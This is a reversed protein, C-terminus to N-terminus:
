AYYRNEGVGVVNEVCRGCIEIHDAHAGVDSRRHWCRICKKKTEGVPIIHIKLSNNGSLEPADGLLPAKKSVLVDDAVRADSTIFVFRLENGLKNLITQLTAACTLEVEAELASGIKGEARYKEIEKNVENRVTIIKEWNIDDTAKFVPWDAYWRELFVSESKEGPLFQWIEEATFSLIPAFWRVMAQVVHYLATQASRRGLSNKQMTYQRDKIIDLYFGGMENVCFNHLKQFILHFQYEDYAKIIEQQLSQAREVIWRDLSLMKDAPVLNKQPDFDHLNALLFRTTNRIRRYAEATRKIIEESGAIEGSYDASAIWLRLIDAGMQSIIKEPEIGNGLSKSMKRGQEDVTFGHTLVAKYPARGDMAVGSLLSSHFWGRHQDSGELYLDAPWALAPNRRLVCFHTVGSEFWVDLIDTVKEYDDGDKPLLETVDLEHWADVGQKEVRLAVQELIELTKPHLERTFKHVFLAIPVGWARQRSICWDPRGEIMGYIRNEGWEPIWKGQRVAALADARLGQQDMSIFWQPTARFILPTKHRWCHPYSHEMNKECLLAQNEKLVEIVHKNAKFVHEGAFIPTDPLFCGNGGVPNVVPLKYKTAVIYDEQGHAPATHVAGTGADLTVHDGLIIPVQRHYFPHHVLINELKAGAVRALEQYEKIGYRELCAAMLDSALVLQESGQASEIQLLVYEFEPNLAVAENAPLTWPTTTWIPISIPGKGKQKLQFRKLFEHEDVIKFRVDIAPSTKNAYEVEAEALASGCEVCWHVPKSGQLLHGKKIIQNLARMVDAEFKFDMTMYPHDWDGIVGLRKFEKRQIDIQAAAYERCKKRFEKPSLKDGAKGFKKEVNLEIPLGHCDWGPVYPADFGNLSQSKVVIDKLVKNVAHGLHINGNAYPPGDHLIFKPKDKNKVRIKEYISVSEWKQLILPERKALDAKMPFETTPLNLTDKYDAM